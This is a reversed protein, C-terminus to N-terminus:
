KSEGRFIFRAGIALVVSQKTTVTTFICRYASSLSLVVPGFSYEIGAGPEVLLGVVGASRGTTYVDHTYGGGVDIGLFCSLPITGSAANSFPHARLGAGITGYIDEEIHSDGNTYAYLVNMSVFPTLAGISRDIEAVLQIGAPIGIAGSYFMAGAKPGVSVSGFLGKADGASVASLAVAAIIASLIFRKM